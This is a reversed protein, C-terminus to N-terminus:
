KKDDQIERKAQATYNEGVWNGKVNVYKYVTRNTEDLLGFSDMTKFCFQDFCGNFKIKEIAKDHTIIGMRYKLLIEDLPYETRLGDAMRDYILDYGDSESSDGDRNKCVFDLWEKDYRLLQHEKLGVRYVFPYQFVYAQRKTKGKRKAWEFAQKPYSTFYVGKGFDKDQHSHELDLKGFLVDSGHYLYKIRCIGNEDM